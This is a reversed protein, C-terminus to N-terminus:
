NTKKGNPAKGNAIATKEAIEGFVCRVFMFAPVVAWLFNVLVGFYFFFIFFPTLPPLCTHVGIPQMNDCGTLLDAAPFVLSGFFQMGLAFAEVPQRWPARHCIGIFAAFTLTSHLFLEINCIVWVNASDPANTGGPKDILDYRFRRDLVKYQEGMLGLKGYGGALGDMMVHIVVCNWLFWNAALSEGFTLKTKSGWVCAIAAVLVAAGIAFAPDTVYRIIREASPVIPTLTKADADVDLFAVTFLTGVCFLMTPDLPRLLGRPAM